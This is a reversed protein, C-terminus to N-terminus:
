KTLAKDWNLLTNAVIGMAHFEMTQSDMTKSDMTPKSDPSEDSVAGVLDEYLGLVEIAEVESLEQQTVALAMWRIASQPDGSAEIARKALAESCEVYVPDNLTVLAQLPTNTPIRRASCLDRTPSDFMLFSPYPSTRRWYTYLGRRYCQDGKATEWKQNSYVSMWIGDPQPPMVSVGGIQESLLGSVSLAQDRVMEASLRTRPGRALFRNKPDNNVVDTSVQNTQRYTSSLVMERLFPKLHWRHTDRLQMALHDLLEGHVPLLGSSGFDELTEVIGVGFLQEWIRNAWVRAALPNEDSVLWRAFKLRDDIENTAVRGGNSFLKPIGPAVEDTKELWNGRVFQRTSRIPQDSLSWVIPLKAGKISAVRKQSKSYRDNARNLQDSSLLETWHSADSASWRVRRLPTALNGTVSAGQKMKLRIKTENTLTLPQKLVFVAERPRTLKPYGGVGTANGKLADRPDNAETLADVFVDALEVKTASANTNPAKTGQDNDGAAVLFLELQTLVSGQEPWQLPDDVLPLIEIRLATLENQDPLVTLDFETRNNFTGGDAVIQDGEVKMKGTNSQIDLPQLTQWSTKSELNWGLRNRDRRAIEFDRFANIADDRKAPDSPVRVTPYDDNLDVDLTNNFLAMCAYFEDHELADYPHSHCQVCGMTTAQWVTWTTSIRDIVAAVRFEEDDTGGETNTMTNRHFATAILDSATPAPLLDGALQKVTFEDYPMDTNFADILWDRYPWMDRHPDKEFGQSDAYRALDMWISAWREGFHNNSLIRDVERQYVRERAAETSVAQLSANFHIIEEVTPPLGILDFSARRLWEAASAAPSPSLGASTFRKQVFQDLRTRPWDSRDTESTAAKQLPTISWIVDWRAGEEIWRRILEVDEAPVPDPHEEPPPMRVDPDDSTIREILVSAEPDGPEIIWGDPPLVRDAYILSVDGAAKVGGHCSTCHRIFLPRIQSNFDVPTEARSPSRGCLLGLFVVLCLTPRPTPRM